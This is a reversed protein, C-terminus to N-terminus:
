GGSDFLFVSAQGLQVGILYLRSSTRLVADAIQPNSVLVDGAPRPLDIVVSKNIGLYVPRNSLMDTSSLRMYGPTQAAAVDLLGLAAAALALSIARIRGLVTMQESRGTQAM